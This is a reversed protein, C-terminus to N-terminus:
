LGYGEFLANERLSKLGQPADKRDTGSKEAAQLAGNIVPIVEGSRAATMGQYIEMVM